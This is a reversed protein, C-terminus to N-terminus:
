YPFMINELNLLFAHLMYADNQPLSTLENHMNRLQVMAQIQNFENKPLNSQAVATAIGPSSEAIKILPKDKEAM